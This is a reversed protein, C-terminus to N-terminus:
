STGAESMRAATGDLDWALHVALLGAPISAPVVYTKAVPPPQALRLGPIREILVRLATQAGLRGLAAGVCFHAGQGFALSQTRLHRLDRDLRYTDPDEFVEPDRNAAGIVCQVKSKPPIPEGAVTDAVLNARFVGAVPADFRLTEEVAVEILDPNARVQEWRSRDELLRNVTNLILYKTTDSGGSLLLLTLPLVEEDRFPRGEPHQATVFIGMADSPSEEPAAALEARRAALRETFYAFARLRAREEGAADGTELSALWDFMWTKFEEVRSHEVGLLGCMLEMPLISAYAASLEVEGRELFADISRHCIEVALDALNRIHKANFVPVVLRRLIASEPPDGRLGSQDIFRPFNGYRNSWVEPNRLVDFVDGHRTLMYIPHEFGDLMRVPCARLEAHYANPDEVVDGFRPLTNLQIAPGSENRALINV